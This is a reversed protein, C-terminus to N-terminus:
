EVLLAAAAMKGLAAELAQRLADRVAVPDEIRKGDRNVNLVGKETVTFLHELMAARDNSGDLIGILNQGVVDLNVSEHRQNVVVQSKGNKGLYLSLSSVRPRDSVKNVFDAQWTRFEVARVSYSTLLNLGVKARTLKREEPPLGRRKMVEDVLDDLPIARPWAEQLIVFSAKTARRGTEVSAGEPTVFREQNKNSIDVPQNVAKAPSAALLGFVNRHNLNRQLEIEKRCLLTQRFFRNRLFDMYQETNIINPSIRKLTEEVKKPFGSTLMTGFEAEGIYQLSHGAAREAFQHFYVPLNFEELHDHFLYYDKSKKILELESKLLMGYHNNETPVSNALFEILARAQQLQQRNDSFQRTHYIMMSRIMERMHWGPYTNYSIYAIGQPNLNNSCIALMKDQVNDPVWSYVGHAIIYDFMGWSEDVDLISAHKININQLGLGQIMRSGMEVEKSSLDVGVFESDPLNCAMPIINGGSACGLELVRCKTVPAPNMGFMKGITALRDPHSQPFPHSEYPIEDYSTTIETETSAM